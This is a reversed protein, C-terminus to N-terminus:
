HAVPHNRGIRVTLILGLVVAIGVGFGIGLQPWDIETGSGVAAVSAPPNGLYGYGSQPYGGSYLFSQGFDQQVLSTKDTADSTPEASATQVGVVLAAVALSVIFSTKFTM